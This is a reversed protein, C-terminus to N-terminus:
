KCITVGTGCVEVDIDCPNFPINVPNSINFRKGVQLQFCGICSDCLYVTAMYRGPPRSWLKDDWHFCVQTRDESFSHAPYTLEASGAESEACPACSCGSDVAPGPECQGYPILSRKRIVVHLATIDTVHQGGDLSRLDVCTRSVTNNIRIPAALETM